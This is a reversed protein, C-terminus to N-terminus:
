PVDGQRCLVTDGSDWAPRRAGTGVMATTTRMWLCANWWGTPPRVTVGPRAVRPPSVSVPSMPAEHADDNATPDSGLVDSDATPDSGLVDDHTQRESETEFWQPQDPPATPDNPLDTM